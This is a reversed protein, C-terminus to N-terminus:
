TVAPWGVGSRAATGAEGRTPLLASACRHASFEVGKVAQLEEALNVRLLEVQRRFRCLTFVDCPQLSARFPGVLVRVCCAARRVGM